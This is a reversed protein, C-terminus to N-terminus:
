DHGWRLEAAEEEAAELDCAERFAHRAAERRRELDRLLEVSEEHEQAAREARRKAEVARLEAHATLSQTIRYASEAKSVHESGPTNGLMDDVTLGFFYALAVAENLRVPRAGAETKAVTTQRWSFGAATMMQAVDEQSLGRATRMGRLM